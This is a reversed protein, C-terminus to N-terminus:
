VACMPMNLMKELNFVVTIKKKKKLCPRMYGLTVEFESHLWPQGQVESGEAEAEQTNPHCVHVM